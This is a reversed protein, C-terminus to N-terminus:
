LLSILLNKLEERISHYYSVFVQHDFYIYIDEGNMKDKIQMLANDYKPFEKIHNEIKLTSYELLLQQEWAGYQNRLLQLVERPKYGGFASLNIEYPSITVTKSRYSLNPFMDNESYNVDKALGKIERECFEKLTIIDYKKSLALLNVIITSLSKSDDLVELLYKHILEEFSQHSESLSNLWENIEIVETANAEDNSSNRRFYVTGPQLGKLKVTPSIPKVYKKVPFEIIGFIMNEYLFPYYRFTPVPFVSGKIKQQLISDDTIQPLGILVQKSDGEEIGLIIYATEKRITNSFSIIDKIFEAKKNEPANSSFDYESKKFDLTSSEYKAILKEFIEKTM